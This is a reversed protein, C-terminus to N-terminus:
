IRGRPALYSVTFIILVGAVVDGSIETKLTRKEIQVWRALGGLTRDFDLCAVVDAMAERAKSDVTSGALHIELAFTQDHKESRSDFPETDANMDWFSIAPVHALSYKGKFSPTVSRIATTCTYAGGVATTFDQGPAILQLQTELANVIQQLKTM